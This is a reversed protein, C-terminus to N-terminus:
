MWSWPPVLKGLIEQLPLWQADGKTFVEEGKLLSSPM